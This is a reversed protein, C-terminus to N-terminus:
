PSSASLTRRKARLTRLLAVAARHHPDRRLVESFTEEADDLLGARAYLVGRALPLRSYRQRFQEWREAEAKGVVEFRAVSSELDVNGRRATVWWEYVHDRRLPPAVRWRGRGILVVKITANPQSPAVIVAEVSTADSPLRCELTPTDSLVFTAVPRLLTIAPSGHTAGAGTGGRVISSGVRLAAVTPPVSLDGRLAAELAALANPPSSPVGDRGAGPNGPTRGVPVRAALRIAEAQARVARAQLAQNQQRLPPVFALYVGAGAAAAGLAIGAPLALRRPFPRTPAPAPASRKPEAVLKRALTQAAAPALQATLATRCAACGDLHDEVGLVAQASPLTGARYREITNSDLCQSM